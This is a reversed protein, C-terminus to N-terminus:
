LLDIYEFGIDSCHICCHLMVLLLIKGFNEM